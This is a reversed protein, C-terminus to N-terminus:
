NSCYYRIITYEKSALQDDKEKLKQPLDFSDLASGYSSRQNQFMDLNFDPISGITPTHPPPVPPRTKFSPTNIHGNMPPVHTHQSTTKSSTRETRGALVHLCLAPCHRILMCAYSKCWTCLVYSITAYDHTALPSPRNQLHWLIQIVEEISTIGRIIRRDLGLRTCSRFLRFRRRCWYRSSRGFRRGNWNSRYTIWYQM